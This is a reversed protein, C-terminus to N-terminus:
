MPVSRKKAVCEIYGRIFSDRLSIFEEYTQFKRMEPVHNHFYITVIISDEDAFIQTMGLTRGSLERKSLTQGSFGRDSFDILDTSGDAKAMEALILTVTQKDRAYTSPDSREARLSAFYFKRPYSYVVRYGDVVSVRQRKGGFEVERWPEATQPRRDLGVGRIGDAFGDCHIYPQLQLTHEPGVPPGSEGAHSAGQAVALVLVSLILTFRNM